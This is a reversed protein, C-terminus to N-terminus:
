NPTPKMEGPHHEQSELSSAGFHKFLEDLDAQCVKAFPDLKLQAPKGSLESVSETQTYTCTDLSHPLDQAYKKISIRSMPRDKLLLLVFM